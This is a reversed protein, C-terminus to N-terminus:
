GLDPFFIEIERRASAASDSGHILNEGMSLALDGRITGPAADTPDTAGMMTRVVRWTEEPGELVAVLVPGSTIFTVLGDFFPKGEHEAYHRRATAEDMTRLEMAVFSLRRAELRGLIEGVLGRAVGDPKVIVLTRHM